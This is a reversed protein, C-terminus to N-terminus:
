APNEDSRDHNPPEESDGNKENEKLREVLEELVDVKIEVRMLAHELEEQKERYSALMQEAIMLMSQNNTMKM